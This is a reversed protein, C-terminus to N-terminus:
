HPERHLAFRKRLTFTRSDLEKKLLGIWPQHKSASQEKFALTPTDWIM